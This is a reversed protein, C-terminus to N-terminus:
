RIVINILKGPVSVVKVIRKGEIFRKVNDSKIAAEHMKEETIGAPAAIRDRVKGNVQVIITVEPAKAVEPDYGPWAHLYVSDTNGLSNWLEQALFPAFPALLLVLRETAEKVVASDAGEGKADNYSRMGNVLEMISAIATNLGFAEIDEEVKKITQHVLRRLAKDEDDLERRVGKMIPLNADVLRWVRNLFRYSGEVGRESWELEKEPPSAFLIFLRATDAGYRDIIEMPDVINGKSKSMKAGDKIVMGQTLLDTFPESMNVLGMDHFVKTFFRSYLLHLIAHEIGGIYQDVPMWYKVKDQNFAENEDRPDSYRLYYWSSDVFTDMTDTERRAPGGCAPCVTEVFDALKGLPSGGKQTIAVDSPLVVPLDEEPVPVVGCVDCYLMPIPTGWYRQRSILWDRLRYTVAFDGRDRDKLWKTVARIGDRKSLGDFEGSNAMRGEGSYAETMEEGALAEGEPQIVVKVPISYKRAFEFDRQDHAPVAMVAGTGYEMLVYDSLWVPLQEGNVPNAVYAGTFVGHKEIEASTRDIDTEHSVREQFEAVAERYEQTALKDVLPHEPALLFFTAGFLTDPRTTFVTIKEDSGYITFDVYAGESRGIWNRQMTRVREPWGELLDIDELLREAYDTIKFFWQELQRKEVESGCRWCEGAEVQENALVTECGPCWNVSAEKRYVLGREYFKLFIWQNWRYYEPSATVMERDWDYSIGLLKLQDRMDAINQRTWDAPHAGRAIAANEAPLGFADYGIPHLVNFGKATSYRAVVDGITYNRVHGMHLNGSPYPFMELIYRKPKAADETVKFLNQEGWRERWKKEVAKHDYTQAM